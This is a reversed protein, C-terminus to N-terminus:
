RIKYNRYEGIRWGTLKEVFALMRNKFSSKKKSIDFQFAWDFRGLREQMVSPHSGEFEAVSDIISYDYETATSVHEKVWADDHWLKQFTQQKAQQAAPPKVWGYHYVYADIPKVNLKNGNKRFGQADRYSRISKDNRIIRIEKRYWKRSNGVYKYSGYFHTYNFLLGEVTPNDAYRHMADRIVPHYKEHIVEDAQIYFAWDSDAAVQDFAKNTEMALVQGGQRLTDDWKSYIIRIKPSQINRILEMTEDDSDGVSVVFEDCLPLISTIAEVIPYDYKIANRVITFGSVKMNRRCYLCNTASSTTGGSTTGSSPLSSITLPWLYNNVDKKTISKQDRLEKRCERGKREHCSPASLLCGFVPFLFRLLKGKLLELLHTRHNRKNLWVAPM